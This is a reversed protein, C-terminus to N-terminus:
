FFNSPLSYLNPRVQTSSSRTKMSNQFNLLDSGLSPSAMSGILMSPPTPSVRGKTNELSDPIGLASTISKMGLVVDTSDTGSKVPYRVKGVFM